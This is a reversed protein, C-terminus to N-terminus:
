FFYRKTKCQNHSAPASTAEFTVTNPPLARRGGTGPPSSSSPPISPLLNTSSVRTRIMSMYGCGYGYRRGGGGGSNVDTKAFVVGHGPHRGGQGPITGADSSEPSDLSISKMRLNLRPGRSRQPTHPAPLNCFHYMSLKLSLSPSNM